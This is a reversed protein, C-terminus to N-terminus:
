KSLSDHLYKTVKSESFPAAHDADLSNLSGIVRAVVDLTKTVVGHERERGGGAVREPAALDVFHLKSTVLGREPDSQSVVITVTVISHQDLADPLLRRRTALGTTLIHMAEVTTSIPNLTLGELEFSGIEDGKIELVPLTDLM